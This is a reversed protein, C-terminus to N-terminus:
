VRVLQPDQGARPLMRIEEMQSLGAPLPLLPAPVKQFM